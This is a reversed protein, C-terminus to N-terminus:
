VPSALHTKATGSGCKRLKRRSILFNGADGLILEYAKEESKDLQDFHPNESSRVGLADLSHMLERRKQQQEDPIGEAVVGEIGLVERNGEDIVNLTRFARGGYLTDAM